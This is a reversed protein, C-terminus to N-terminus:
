MPYTPTNNNSNNATDGNNEPATNKDLNVNNNPSVTNNPAAANNFNSGNNTSINNNPFVPNQPQNFNQPQNLNQPQNFNQQQNNFANTTNFNSYNYNFNGGNNLAGVYKPLKKMAIGAINVLLTGSIGIWCFVFGVSYVFISMGMISVTFNSLVTATIIILIIMAVLTTGIAPIRKKMISLVATALVFIGLFVIGTIFAGASAQAGSTMSSGMLGSGTMEELIDEGASILKAITFLNMDNFEAFSLSIDLRDEIEDEFDEIDDEDFRSFSARTLSSTSIMPLFYGLVLFLSFLGSLILPLLKKVDINM